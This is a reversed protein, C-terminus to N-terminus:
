IVWSGRMQSKGGILLNIHSSDDCQLIGMSNDCMGGRLFGSNVM